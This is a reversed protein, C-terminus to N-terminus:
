PTPRLVDKTAGLLNTVGALVEPVALTQLCAYHEFRCVPEYCPSCPPPHYLTVHHEGLPGTWTPTSSGFLGVVPTGLAAALHMAGSDNSVVADAQALLGMLQPLDTKGVLPIIGDPVRAAISREAWVDNPTGAVAVEAGLDRVLLSALHAFRTVPWRKAPGYRAGPCLVILPRHPAALYPTPTEIRPLPRKGRGLSAEVVGLYHSWQHETRPPRQLPHTLLM